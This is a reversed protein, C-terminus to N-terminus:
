LNKLFFEALLEEDSKKAPPEEAKAPQPPPPPPPPAPAPAAQVKVPIGIFGPEVRYAVDGILASDRYVEAKISSLDKETKVKGLLGHADQGGGEVIIFRYAVELNFSPKEGTLITLVNGSLEIKRQDNLSDLMKQTFFVKQSVGHAGGIKAGELKTGTLNASRLDAHTLDAERLDARALNSSTLVVHRLNARRLDSGELNAERLDTYRFNAGRFVGGRLDAGKLDLGRLDASEFGIKKKVSEVLIERTIKTM